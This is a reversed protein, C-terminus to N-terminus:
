IANPILGAEVFILVSLTRKRVPAAHAFHPPIAGPHFSHFRDDLTRKDLHRDLIILQHLLTIKEEFDVWTRELCVHIQRTSLEVVHAVHVGANKIALADLWHTRHVFRGRGTAAV